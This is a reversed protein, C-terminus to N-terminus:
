NRRQLIRRMLISGHRYLWGGIIPAVYGLGAFIGVFVLYAFVLAISDGWTM